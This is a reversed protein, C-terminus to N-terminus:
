CEFFIALAMQENHYDAVEQAHNEHFYNGYENGYCDIVFWDARWCGEPCDTM